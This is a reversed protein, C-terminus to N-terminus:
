KTSVCEEYVPHTLSYTVSEALPSRHSASVKLAEFRAERDLKAMCLVDEVLNGVVLDFHPTDPCHDLLLKVLRALAAPREDAPLEQFMDKIQLVPSGKLTQLLHPARSRALETVAGYLGDM